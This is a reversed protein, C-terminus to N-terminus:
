LAGKANKMTEITMKVRKVYLTELVGQIRPYRSLLEMLASGPLELIDTEMTAIVDATRPRGTLFAVEGFFDNEGLTGLVIEEEGSRTAVKVRGKIIIYISDGTERERVIFDGPAYARSAMKEVVGSFEEPTLNAFLPIVDNLHKQPLATPQLDEFPGDTTIEEPIEEVPAQRTPELPIPELPPPAASDAYSTAEVEIGPYPATEKIEFATSEIELGKEIVEERAAGQAGALATPDVSLPALPAAGSAQPLATPEIKLM